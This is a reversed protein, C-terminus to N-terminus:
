GPVTEKELHYVVVAALHGEPTIDKIEKVQYGEKLAAELELYSILHQSSNYLLQEVGYMQVTVTKSKM